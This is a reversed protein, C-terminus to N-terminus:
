VKIKIISMQCSLHHQHNTHQRQPMLMAEATQQLRVSHFMALMETKRILHIIYIHFHATINAVSDIESGRYEAVAVQKIGLDYRPRSKQHCNQKRLIYGQIYAKM